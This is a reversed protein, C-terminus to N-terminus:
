PKTYKPALYWFNRAYQYVPKGDFEGVMRKGESDFDSLKFPNKPLRKGDFTYQAPQASQPRYRIARPWSAVRLMATFVLHAIARDDHSLRRAEVLAAAGTDVMAATIRGPNM